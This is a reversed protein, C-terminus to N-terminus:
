DCKSVIICWGYLFKKWCSMVATIFINKLAKGRHFTGTADWYNNILKTETIGTIIKTRTWMLLGLLTKEFAPPSIFLTFISHRQNQNFSRSLFSLADDADSHCTNNYHSHTKHHYLLRSCKFVAHEPHWCMINKFMRKFPTSTPANNRSIKTVFHSQLSKECADTILM